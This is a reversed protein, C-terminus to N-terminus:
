PATCTSPSGGTFGTTSSKFATATSGANQAQLFSAVAATDANGGSYSPLRFSTNQITRVRIDAGDPNSATNGSIHACMATTDGTVTGAEALIAAVACGSPCASPANVTTANNGTITLQVNQSGGLTNGFSAEIGYLGSNTVTNNTVAIRAEGGGEGHMWIGSSIGSNNHTINMGTVTGAFANAGSGSSSSGKTLVIPSGSSAGSTITGGSINFALGGPGNSAIDMGVGNGSWTGGTVTATMKQSSEGFILLASSRNNTFTNSTSTFTMTASGGLQSIVAVGNSGETSNNDHINSNSLTLTSTGSSNRVFVNHERSGSIDLNSMTSTGLLNTMYIGSHDLAINTGNASITSNDLAFTTLNNGYIGHASGGTVKMRSLSVNTVGDLHIGNGSSTSIIGGSDATGTGTVTFSGPTTTNVTSLFIGSTAGTTTVRTISFTSGQSNQIDVGRANTTTINLQNVTLNNKGSGVLGASGSSPTLNFGRVRSNTGVTVTGTLNRQTGSAISPRAITGAPPSIGMLGDFGGADTAADSLLWGDTQLTVNGSVNGNDVFIRQNTNTGMATTAAALTNFPASLRGTGAAGLTSDVFWIVPGNVTFTITQPASAVGPSPYGSDVVTYTVSYTGTGGAPPDFDFTGNAANVNSVTCGICSAGPTISGVTFTPNWTADGAVDNPDTAGVLLGGLSIKMNAQVTYAKAAAVPADNVPAVTILFTQTPSTDVGGNATGGNDSISVTVTATGWKNPASTYTLTGTPSVAPQTAFLGNNDNTVNFSVTQASENAPGKSIATAWNSVSQVGADENVSEDGGKTFSPADNVATVTITVTQTGSTDAGGNATGGDDTAKVTVTASGNADPAPTYSLTGNSISPLVSFLANNSTPLVTSVTVTQGSEDAPGASTSTVFGNVTQAGADELVTQNGATTFSPADNVAGVTITFTQADSTDDGNNATGGNDSLSVTVTASGVANAASTYTLTGTPSVAPQTVFLANNDNTVTFSLTQASEDAPGKSIATAWNSVSQVGGDELVSEDAGKTFSPADNVATVTITFTQTGSTDAGGNATGGDDTIRVSVTATGNANVAPTYTLDGNAAVAPLVSFLGNNTTGTVEFSPTQASENAPGTSIATAWGTVTQAGADELVTQDGGKTFSPVDNVPNVTINATAPASDITGDNVTYTFSDSGYYDANPTYTVTATCTSPTNADCSVSAPVSVLGNTATGPTFTLADGDDDHGTLTVTIAGGDENGSGSTADATPTANPPAVTINVTATDTATGDSADYTFSDAGLYGSAPTYTFSGDANLTVTGHAPTSANGATLTATDVDTDNGLVGPAAVVLDADQITQYTDDAAVPADNVATVTLSVTAASSDVTGDNVKYTFSDPGAYNADPTYTVSATCGTACVPAGIAGLSGHAPGTVIAFTLASDDVDTGSLTVPKATDELTTDSVPAAVPADNVANVTISVTAVNSDATGDNAKYTFSDPGNYDAAPTYLYSGDANLTLTGHAPGTVLVATLPDSDADTDNALVGSAASVSAPTDENTAVSDDTAVPADNVSTVTLTVTAASSELTGDDAKYTFSDAGHYNADPTYTVTATCANPATCDAASVAGLSGHAPGTVIAFTLADDDVDTGSLTVSKSADEATSDSVAAAAPADNVANVTITVTTSASDATGDTAHYAFSDTGNYNANPTYTFSGDSNLTLSGNAPGSELVPTLTDGDADTDNGLVGPASVVLQTDEDTSYSDNSGAPTDNVTTVTLTVTAVNSDATGDNVRFTFSDAGHYNADPTYTVTATCANPATCDPTGIAGLSGHAPGTVIAFTLADDDVDSGSLTVSKPADEATSDSVPAAVPADNVANVTITVTTSASDATGDTAHYAFSDTGNYNANPTYTFSGDANLTLSGNAPGSELVPTLTDGDADTDNALVGPATVPLATDEDISYADNSGAPTDNVTTVTLTVTATNSDATGDNVKYTFSDAGHYNADPTYTVSATCSNAATCDPTGVAGLSGHAPGTVISFALADDDVDTASLTVSKPADEATTDTVAAAVPADNVANVTISVTAAASDTHTDNAKYTFSDTGNFNANPTYTFSGDANVTATGNAPATTLSATLPDGDADTDNALVGPATVTLPTDEDTSYTDNNAVPPHSTASYGTFTRLPSTRNVASGIGAIVKYGNGYTGNVTTGVWNALVVTGSGASIPASAFTGPTQVFTGGLTSRAATPTLPSSAHNKGCVVITKTSGVLAAKNVAPCAGNPTSPLDAVVAGSVEFTYLYTTLGAGGATATKLLSTNDFQNSKSVVVSWTGVVDNIGAATKAKVYFTRSQGPKIDDTTGTASRFRCKPDSLQATWGTPPTPCGSLSWGTSPRSIQVAGITATTGTNKVTFEYISGASDGIYYLKPTIAATAAYAPPTVAEAIVAALGSVAVVGAIM